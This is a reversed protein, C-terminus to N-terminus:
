STARLAQRAATLAVKDPGDIGCMETAWLDLLEATAVQGTSWCFDLFRAYMRGGDSADIMRQRGLSRLAQLTGDILDGAVVDTRPLNSSSSTMHVVTGLLVVAAVMGM